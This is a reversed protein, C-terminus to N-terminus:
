SGACKQCAHYGQAESLRILYVMRKLGGCTLSSHYRNGYSTIYVTGGEMGCSACRTYRAGDANRLSGVMSYSVSQISLDLYACDMTAHYAHGHPTVYVFRDQEMGADDKSYGTWKRTKVSQVIRIEQKGFFGIPLPIEYTTYLKIYNGTFSSRVADLSVTGCGQYGSADGADKKVGHFIAEAEALSLLTGKEESEWALVAMKRGTYQLAEEVTQQVMLVRFFFLITVLLGAFLPFIVAAEITFSAKGSACFPAGKAFLSSKKKKRFSTFLCRKAGGKEPIWIPYKRKMPLSIHKM